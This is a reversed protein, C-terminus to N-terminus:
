RFIVNFNESTYDYDNKTLKGKKQRILALKESEAILRNILERTDKSYNFSLVKWNKKLIPSQLWMLFNNVWINKGTVDDAGLTLFDEMAQFIRISTVIEIQNRKAPDYLTPEYAGHDADPTLSKFLFFGEPYARSLDIQPSLWNRQINEITNHTTRNKEIRDNSHTNLTLNYMVMIILVGATIGIILELKRDKETNLSKIYIFGIALIIIVILLIIHLNYEIIYEIM